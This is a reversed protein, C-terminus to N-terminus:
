QQSSVGHGCLSPRAWADSVEFGLSLFEWHCVEELLAVGGIIGSKRFRYPGNENLGGCVTCTIYYDDYLAHSVTDYVYIHYEM